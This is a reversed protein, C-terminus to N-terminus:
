APSGEIWCVALYLAVMLAANVRPHRALWDDTAFLRRELKNM